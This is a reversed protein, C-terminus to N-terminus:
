TSRVPQSKRRRLSELTFVLQRAQRWLMHEYRSLRDLAFTPLEVLHLFCDAVHKKSDSSLQEAEQANPEQAPRLFLLPRESVDAIGVVTASSPRADNHRADETVSEFLATEIGKARHLRWLILVLQFQTRKTM